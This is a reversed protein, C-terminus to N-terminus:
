GPKVDQALPASRRRALQKARAWGFAVLVSSVLALAAVVLAEPLTRARGLVDSMGFGAGYLLLIHFVYIVLTESALTELAKPLRHVGLSLVALATAILAVIGLKFLGPWPAADGYAGLPTHPGVLAVAVALAGALGLVAVSRPGYSRVGKPCALAGAVAGALMYGLWPFLPFISGGRSTVYNTVFASPLTPVITETLPAAFITVLSIVGAAIVVQTASRLTLTLGELVLIGVGICQLVDVIAFDGLARAFTAPDAGFAWFPNHLLYGIAVLLLGRRTRKKIAAPSARHADFPVLTALHFSAGAAFLFAVSTLGRAWTWGAFVPGDRLSTDLVAEISHGQVMQFTAILRLLDIYVVRRKPETAEISM